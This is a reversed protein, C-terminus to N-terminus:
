WEDDRNGKRERVTAGVVNDNVCNHPLLAPKDRGPQGPRPGGKAALRAWGGLHTLFSFGAGSVVFRRPM